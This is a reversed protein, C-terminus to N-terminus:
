AIHAVINVPIFVMLRSSACGIYGRYGRTKEIHLSKSGVGGGIETLFAPPIVTTYKYTM